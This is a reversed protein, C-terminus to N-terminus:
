INWSKLRFNEVGTAGAGLAAVGVFRLASFTSGSPAGGALDGLVSFALGLPPRPRGAFFAAPVAALLLDDVKM